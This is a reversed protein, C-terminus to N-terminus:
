PRAELRSLKWDVYQLFREPPLEALRTLEDLSPPPLDPDVLSREVRNLALVIEERGIRGSRFAFRLRDTDTRPAVPTPDTPRARQSWTRAFLLAAAVVAVAAFPLAVGLNGGAVVALATAGAAVLALAWGVPSNM